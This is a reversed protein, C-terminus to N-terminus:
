GCCWRTMIPIMDAKLSSIFCRQLRFEAQNPSLALGLMYVSHFQTMLSSDRVQTRNLAFYGAVRKPGHSGDPDVPLRHGMLELDLDTERLRPHAGSASVHGTLAASAAVASVFVNRYM